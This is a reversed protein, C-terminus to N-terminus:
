FRRRYHECTKQMELIYKTMCVREDGVEVVSFNPVDKLLGDVMMNGPIKFGDFGPAKCRHKAGKKISIDCYKCSRCKNIRFSGKIIMGLIEILFDEIFAEQDVLGGYVLLLRTVVAKNNLHAPVGISGMEAYLMELFEIELRSHQRLENFADTNMLRIIRSLVKNIKRYPFSTAIHAWRKFECTGLIWTFPSPKGDIVTAMERRNDDSTDLIVTLCQSSVYDGEKIVNIGLKNVKKILDNLETDIATNYGEM